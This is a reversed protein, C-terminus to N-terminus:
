ISILSVSINSISYRYKDDLSGKTVSGGCFHVIPINKMFCALSIALAEYRDGLIIVFRPKSKLLIKEVDNMIKSFIKITADQRSSYLKIKLSQKKKIRDIISELKTNGFVKSHHAGLLILKSNINKNSDLNIILNRLIGYDSRAVSFIFCDLNKKRM